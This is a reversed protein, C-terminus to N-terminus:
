RARFLSPVEGLEVVISKIGNRREKKADNDDLVLSKFSDLVNSRRSDPTQNRNARSKKSMAYTPASRRRDMSFRFAPPLDASILSACRGGGPRGKKLQERIKWAAVKTPSVFTERIQRAQKAQLKTEDVFQNDNNDNVNTTCPNRNNTGGGIL